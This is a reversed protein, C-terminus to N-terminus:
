EYTAIGAEAQDMDDQNLVYLIARGLSFDERRIIEYGDNTFCALGFSLLLKFQRLLNPSVVLRRGLFKLPEPTEFTYIFGGGYLDKASVLVLNTPTWEVDYFWGQQQESYRLTMTAKSGDDLIIQLQQQPDANLLTLRKM